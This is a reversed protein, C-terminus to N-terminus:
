SYEINSMYRFDEPKVELTAIPKVPVDSTWEGSPEGSDDQEPHFQSKDFIYIVGNTWPDTEKASTPIKFKYKSEGTDNNIEVGSEINGQLKKRDQIAYFIPLVPDTVGYVANKNGSKKAADNAQRPELVELSPRASGHLLVNKNETLFKLFEEKPYSLNYEITPIDEKKNQLATEFLTEFDRQKDREQNPLQDLSM